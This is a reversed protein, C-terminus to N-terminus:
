RQFAYSVKAFLQRNSPEFEGEAATVERLDGYGVFFVTQWNLKYAVLLQSALAGTHQDVGGLSLVEDRNTRQNQVIARLFTRENFSYTARIREVQSTFLRDGGISLWRLGTTLALQLHNTPRVSASGNINAGRGLRNNTFDVEEGVWGDVSVSPLVRNVAFQIQYYIRDRDFQEGENAVTDKALRLRWFSRFRGDAGIGVSALRYLLDGDQTNQAEGFAYARVRNFFGKPRWTRGGEVYSGRWGVQPVFGNDARFEEGYDSYNVYLDNKATSYQYWAYAAHGSLKRGDWETALEPREPTKSRSLLFQGTITHSDGIRFQADPGFVRNYAGGESERTTALFSVFNTGGLDRRIRGIAAISSFDQDAVDSGFATPLIVSGGGRDQAVLMTYAYAGKRGTTRAGWRPSTLTRTYLAQIPTNFMEVGELFFPRKEPIFIAFRENTSIVAVDSEVQSFDPNITADVAMDASPSWKLDLGADTGVDHNRIPSGLGDRAEGLQQATVYPAAVLHDGAPLDRLGTVKGFSCVFCNQGRPLKNTFIQVRRDRPMNRYLILGWQEPNPNDYRLSSFPIRMELTWGKDHIRAASDWFFDPSADENGTTDDNVADFQVGRATVFFELATKGDNRTDLIVGAFDDNNGSIQDHDGYIARIESPKPDLSEIAVYLFRNDYTVLGITRVGPEVNDGPNTEYWTEYRTAHQWEAEGLQGDIEIPAPTRTLTTAQQQPASFAPTALISCLLLGAARRRM